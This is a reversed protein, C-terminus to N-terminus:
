SGHFERKRSLEWALIGFGMAIMGCGLISWGSPSPAAMLVTEVVLMLVITLLNGVSTLVPGWISLLVMYGANWTLGALAIASISLVIALPSGTAAKEKSPDSLFVPLVWLSFLTTVGALSTIFNPYLGFPLALEAKELQRREEEVEESAEVFGDQMTEDMEGGEENFLPRYTVLPSSVERETDDDLGIGEAPEHPLAIYKKYLVQVLAYVVSAILTLLNGFLPASPVSPDTEGTGSKSDSKVGSYVTITVGVCAMVVAVLKNAELRRWWSAPHSGPPVLICVSFVYAWFASTNWIATVDSISAFSVAIYWLLGPTSIGITLVIALTIINRTPFRGVHLDAPSSFQLRLTERILSLYHNVTYPTTWTLYLLHFPFIISFTSHAIYFLLYPKRFGLTTQVYQTAASQVVFAILIAVFLIVAVPGGLRPSFGAPNQRHQELLTADERSSSRARGVGDSAM